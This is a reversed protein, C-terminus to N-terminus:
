KEVLFICGWFYNDIESNKLILTLVWYTKFNILHTKCKLNKQFLYDWSIKTSIHTYQTETSFTNRQTLSLFNSSCQDLEKCQFMHHNGDLLCILLSSISFNRSIYVRRLSFWSSISFIFPSIVLLSTSDTIKFSKLWCFDLVLYNWLHIRGFM